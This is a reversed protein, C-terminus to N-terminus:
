HQKVAPEVRTSRSTNPAKQSVAGTLRESFLMRLGINVFTVTLLLSVGSGVATVFNDEVLWLSFAPSMWVAVSMLDNRKIARAVGQDVVNLLVSLAIFGVAVGLTGFNVYFELTQGLAVATRSNFYLGTYFRVLHNGGILVPKEPWLIRPIVSLVADSLTQGYAYEVIGSELRGVSLGILRNLSMREDIARLHDQNSIDFPSFNNILSDHVTAVRSEFDAGSWVVSRIEARQTYYTVIMSLGVYLTISAIPLILRLRHLRFLTHIVLFALPPLVLGLFGEAIISTSVFIIGGLGIFGLRVYKIPSKALVRFLALALGIPYLKSVASAFASITPTDAFLPILIFQAILGTILYIIPLYRQLFSSGLSTTDIVTSSQQTGRKTWLLAHAIPIFIVYGFTLAAFALVAQSYGLFIVEPSWEPTYWFITYVIGQLAHASTFIFAHTFAIGSMVSRKRWFKIALVAFLVFWIVMLVSFQSRM